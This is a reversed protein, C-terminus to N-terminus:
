KEKKESIEESKVEETDNKDSKEEVTTNENKTLVDPKTKRFAAVLFSRANCVVM